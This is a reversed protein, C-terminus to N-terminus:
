GDPELWRGPDYFRRREVAEDPGYATERVIRCGHCQETVCLAGGEEWRSVDRYEHRSQADAECGPEDEIVNGRRDGM